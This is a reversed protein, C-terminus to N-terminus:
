QIILKKMETKDKSQIKLIYVGKPQQSLDLQVSKGDWDYHGVVTGTVTYLEITSPQFGHSGTVTVTVIGNTPNPRVSFCSTSSYRDEKGTLVPNQAFVV